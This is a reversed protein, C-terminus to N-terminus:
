RIWRRGVLVTKEKREGLPFKETYIPTYVTIVSGRISIETYIGFNIFFEWQTDM